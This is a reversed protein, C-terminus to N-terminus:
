ALHALFRGHESLFSVAVNREACLAMLAPSMSVQGVCVIGELALVPVRLRTEHELVRPSVQSSAM